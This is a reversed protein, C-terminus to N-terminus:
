KKVENHKLRRIDRNAKNQEHRIKNREAPTVTGDAKTDKKDQQIKAQEKELRRAEGKTLEGSKVGQKIRAQQRLQRKTIRPTKTQPTTQEQALTSGFFFASILAVLLLRRTSM